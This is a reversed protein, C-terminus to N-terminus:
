ALPTSTTQQRRRPSASSSHACLWPLHAHTHTHTYRTHPRCLCPLPSSLSLSLSFDRTPLSATRENLLPSKGRNEERGRKKEKLGSPLPSRAAPACRYLLASRMFSALSMFLAASFSLPVSLQSLLDTEVASQGKHPRRRLFLLTLIAVASDFTADPSLCFASLSLPLSLLLLFFLILSDFGMLDRRQEEIAAPWPRIGAVGTAPLPSCGSSALCEGLRSIPGADAMIMTAGFHAALHPTPLTSM